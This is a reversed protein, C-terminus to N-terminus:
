AAEDPTSGPAAKVTPVAPKARRVRKRFPAIGFHVLREQDHGINAKVVNRLRTVLVRGKAKMAKLEQTVEQKLAIASEQRVKLTRLDALHQAVPDRYRGIDPPLVQLNEDVAALLGEMELLQDALSTAETM